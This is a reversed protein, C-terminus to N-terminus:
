CPASVRDVARALADARAGWSPGYTTFSVLRDDDGDGYNLRVELLDGPLEARIVEGWEIVTVSDADLREEIALDVADDPGSLRYVDLHHLVRVDGHSTAPYERAITFTPSTIPETVGLARGLGQTFATKGAGLDGVLVLLDGAQCLEAVAAALARTQDASDSKVRIAMTRISGLHGGAIDGPVL